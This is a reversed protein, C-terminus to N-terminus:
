PEKYEMEKLSIGDGDFPGYMVLPRVNGLKM